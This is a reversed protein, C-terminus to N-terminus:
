PGAPGILQLTVNDPGGAALALEILREARRQLPWPKGLVRGIDEPPVPGSLGDSCLLFLDGPDRRRRSVLIQAPDLHGGLSQTLIHRDPHREAERPSLRGAEIMEQVLSHDRTLPELRGRSFLYLRSDGAHSYWVDRGRLLLAVVTSGLGALEPEAEGRQFVRRDAELLARRLLDAPDPAESDPRPPEVGTEGPRDGPELALTIRRTAPAELAPGNEFFVRFAALVTEAAERGGRHGGLGDAVIFLEGQATSFWGFRDENYDRRGPHSAQAVALGPWVEAAEGAPGAERGLWRRLRGALGRPPRGGAGKNPKM